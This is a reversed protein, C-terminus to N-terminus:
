ICHAEKGSVIEVEVLDKVMSYAVDPLAVFSLQM